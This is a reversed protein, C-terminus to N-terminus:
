DAAGCLEDAGGLVYGGRPLRRLQPDGLDPHRLRHRVGHPWGTDGTLVGSRHGHFLRVADPGGGDPSVDAARFAPSQHHQLHCGAPGRDGPLQVPHALDGYPPRAPLHWGAAPGTVTVGRTWETKVYGLASAMSVADISHGLSQIGFFFVKLCDQVNYLDIVPNGAHMPIIWTTMQLPFSILLVVRAALAPNFLNYGLGGYIQKALVIAMFCGILVMWWPTTAPLTLALFLGTLAASGDGVAAMSRGMLRLSIGELVMCGAISSLIVLVSLWGFLYVSVIVAPALALMVTIMTARVSDGSHLHPSSVLTSM